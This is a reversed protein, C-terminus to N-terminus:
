ASQIAKWGARNLIDMQEAFHEEDRARLPTLDVMYSVGGVAPTVNLIERRGCDPLLLFRGQEPKARADQCKEFKARIVTSPGCLVPLILRIKM